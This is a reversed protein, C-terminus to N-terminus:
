AMDRITTPMLARILAYHWAPGPMRIKMLTEPGMSLSLVIGDGELQAQPIDQYRIQVWSRKGTLGHLILRESTIWLQAAEPDRWRPSAKKALQKNSRMLWVNGVATAAWALPGGFFLFFGRRKILPDGYYSMVEVPSGDIFSEEEPELQQGGATLMAPELPQLAMGSALAARLEAADALDQRNANRQDLRERIFPVAMLAGVALLGAGNHSMALAGGVMLLLGIRFLVWATKGHIMRPRAPFEPSPRAAHFTLKHSHSLEPNM